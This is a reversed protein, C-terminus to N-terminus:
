FSLVSLQVGQDDAGANGFDNHQFFDGLFVVVAGQIQVKSM